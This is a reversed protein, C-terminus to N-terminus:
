HKTLKQRQFIKNKKVDAVKLFENFIWSNVCPVGVKIFKLVWLYHWIFFLKTFIIWSILFKHLFFLSVQEFLNLNFQIQIFNEYLVFYWFVLVMIVKIIISCLKLPLLHLNCLIKMFPNDNTLLIVYIVFEDILTSISLPFFFPKTKKKGKSLCTNQLLTYIDYTFACFKDFIFDNHCVRQEFLTM